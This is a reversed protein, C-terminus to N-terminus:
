LGLHGRKGSKRGLESSVIRQSEQKIFGSLSNVSPPM